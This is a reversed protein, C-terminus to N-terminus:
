LIELALRILTSSDSDDLSTLIKWSIGRDYGLVELAELADRKNSDLLANSPADPLKVMTVIRTAATAGIGKVRSLAKTDAAAVATRVGEAGLDRLLSLASTPGVGSVKRIAEFMSQDDETAFGFLVIADERIQTTVFLEVEAGDVLLHPTLVKWGVGDVDIVWSAGVMRSVGRLYGIM